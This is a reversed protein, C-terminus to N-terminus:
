QLLKKFNKIYELATDFETLDDGYQEILMQELTIYIIRKQDDNFQLITKSVINSPKSFIAFLGDGLVSEYNELASLLLCPLYYQFGQETLYRYLYAGKSALYKRDLKDWNCSFLQRAEKNEFDGIVGHREDIIIQNINKKTPFLNRFEKELVKQM